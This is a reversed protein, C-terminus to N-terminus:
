CVSTVVNCSCCHIHACPLKSLSTEELMGWVPRAVWNSNSSITCVVALSSSSVKFSIIILTSKPKIRPFGRFTSPQQLTIWSCFHVKLGGVINVLELHPTPPHRPSHNQCVFALPLPLIVRVHIERSELLNLLLPFIHTSFPQHMRVYYTHTPPPLPFCSLSVDESINTSHYTTRGSGTNSASPPVGAIMSGDESLAGYYEGLTPHSGHHFLPLPPPSSPHAQTM